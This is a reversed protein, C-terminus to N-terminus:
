LCLEHLISEINNYDYYFISKLVIGSKLAYEAKLEDHKKQKEFSKEGGFYDVPEVHQKGNYEILLNLSPIHFDYTLKRGGVGVLGKFSKQTTFYINNSKLFEYIRKEGKITTPCLKCRVGARFSAPTLEYVHSSNVQCKFKLLVESTSGIKKPDITNSEHWYKLYFDGGFADIAWNDFTRCKTCMVSHPNATLTYLIREESGHKENECKIWYKLSSSYCVDEPSKLNLSYDWRLLLSEQNNLICWDKFSGNNKLRTAIRKEIAGIEYYSCKRCCYEGNPRNQKIYKGYKIYKICKCSDCEVLVIESSTPPLDEVKVTITTGRKVGYKGNKLSTTPIEYGLEKYRIIMHSNLSKEVYKTIIGM